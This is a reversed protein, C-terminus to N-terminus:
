SAIHEKELRKARAAAIRDIAMAAYNKNIDIGICDRGHKDAVVGVTGSGFFTDMVVCPVPTSLSCKCTQKWGTTLIERMGDLIRQKLASPDQAGTGEYHKTAKGHYKGSADAGSLARQRSYPEGRKWLRRYPAGCMSCCGHESTGSLLCPEVLDTPFTAFHAGKFGKSSISWVTRLKRVGVVDRLAASFSANARVEGRAVDRAKKGLGGGRSHANGTVPQLTAVWDYYYRRSKTLLFVQEHTRGPRDKVSEPQPNRKHWIVESRWYWGDRQLALVVRAPVGAMDKPKLGNASKHPVNRLPLRDRRFSSGSGIRPGANKSVDQHQRSGELTSKDGTKGSRSGAIYSDGLNLWVSGDHRLVRRVERFVKVLACVYCEGCEAGTAWGLCDLERERGIQGDVAYDRLAWYPPSTVVLHVHNAPLTSLQQVVDGVLIRVSM